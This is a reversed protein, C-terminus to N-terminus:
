YRYPFFTLNDKIVYINIIIVHKVKSDKNNKIGHCVVSVCGIIHSEILDYTEKDDNEEQQNSVDDIQNMQLIEDLYLRM